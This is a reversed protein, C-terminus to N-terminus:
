LNSPKSFGEGPVFGREVVRKWALDLIELLEDRNEDVWPYKKRYKLDFFIMFKEPSEFSSRALMALIGQYLNQGERERQEAFAAADNSLHEKYDRDEASEDKPPELTNQIFNSLLQFEPAIAQKQQPSLQKWISNLAQWQETQKLQDRNLM